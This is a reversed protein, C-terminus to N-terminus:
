CLVTNAMWIVPPATTGFRGTIVDKDLCAALRVCSVDGMWTVEILLSIPAETCRVCIRHLCVDLNLIIGLSSSHM